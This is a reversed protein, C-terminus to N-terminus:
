SQWSQWVLINRLSVVYVLLELIILRCFHEISLEPECFGPELLGEPLLPPDGKLHKPPM